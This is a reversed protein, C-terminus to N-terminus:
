VEAFVHINQECFSPAMEPGERRLLIDTPRWYASAAPKKLDVGRGIMELSCEPRLWCSGPKEFRANPFCQCTVTPEIVEFLLCKRRIGTQAQHWVPLAFSRAFAVM